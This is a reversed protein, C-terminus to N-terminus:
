PSTRALTDPSPFLLLPICQMEVEEWKLKLVPVSGGCARNSPSGPCEKDGWEGVESLGPKLAPSIQCGNRMGPCRALHVPSCPRSVTHKPSPQSCSAQLCGSLRLSCTHHQSILGGGHRHTYAHSLPLSLPLTFSFCMSAWPHTFSVFDARLRARSRSSCFGARLVSSAPSSAQSESGDGASHRRHMVTCSHTPPSWAACLRHLFARRAMGVALTRSWVPLDGM